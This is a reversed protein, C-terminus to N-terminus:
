HCKSPILALFQLGRVKRSSARCSASIRTYLIHKRQFTCSVRNPKSLGLGHSLIKRCFWTLLALFLVLIALNIFSGHIGKPPMPFSPFNVLAHNLISMDHTSGPWGAVAFIFRMDFDCIALVNQSTYGHCCTHNVVEEVPVVMPVHPGDIAGITGKFYPWFPDERVREHDTSFTPYRLKINDKALKRLCKLVEIFKTHVTWLSRTFHNKAQSFSQPRGVIWLFM